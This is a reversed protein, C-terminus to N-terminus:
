RKFIMKISEVIYDVFKGFIVFAPGLMKWWLPTVPDIGFKDTTHEKAATYMFQLMIGAAFLVFLYDLYQDAFGKVKQARSFFFYVIIGIGM